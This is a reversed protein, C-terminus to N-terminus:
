PPQFQQVLVADSTLLSFLLFKQLNTDEGLAWGWLLACILIFHPISLGSPLIGVPALGNWKLLSAHHWCCLMQWHCAMALCNLVCSPYSIGFDIVLIKNPDIPKSTVHSIIMSLTFYCLSWSVHSFVDLARHTCLHEQSLESIEPATPDLFTLFILLV